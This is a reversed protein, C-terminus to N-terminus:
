DDNHVEPKQEFLLRSPGELETDQLTGRFRAAEGMRVAEWEVRIFVWMWRRVLELAEMLFVGSELDSITHLHSSLELSWTFRLVVDILTFLYYVGADPLLLVPRLGWHEPPTNTSGRPGPSRDYREPERSVLKKLRNLISSPAWTELELLSLGWDKEVDWYFSFMSNVIVALLWLRWLRHEGFWRDGSQNLQAETIGKAAAVDQVVIKQAASLFIVPFASAYKCANALPRLSKWDSHYLEVVCQRFRIVYPLCVMALTVWKALGAPAERGHSVGGFLVQGASVIFDGLVKAFSTLIDAFIVDCFFIPSNAPPFLCRWMSRRLAKRERYAPGRWPTLSLLTPVLAIAAILGRWREMASTDDGTIFRFLLWGGGVWLTYLLFLRYVPGYLKTSEPRSVPGMHAPSASRSADPTTMPLPTDLDVNYDGDDGDRIDLVWSVDLGLASLVHLNVAWLLIAFGILFLVRFPLPFSASFEPLPLPSLDPPPTDIDM